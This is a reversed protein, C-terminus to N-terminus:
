TSTEGPNVTSTRQVAADVTMDMIHADGVLLVVHKPEDGEDVLLLALDAALEPLGM